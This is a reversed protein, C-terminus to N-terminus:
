YKEAATQSSSAVAGGQGHASQGSVGIIAGGFLLAACLAIGSVYKTSRSM